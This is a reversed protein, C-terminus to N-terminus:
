SSNIWSRCSYGLLKTVRNKELGYRLGVVIISIAKLKFTPTLVEHQFQLLLFSMPM